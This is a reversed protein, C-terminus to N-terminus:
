FKMVLDAQLIKEEKDSTSDIEETMYYDLGFIVNKKIGVQAILEHGKYGTKGGAFDSDPFADIWADKELKRYLYKFQWQGADKVKKAGVKFGVLLGTNKDSPDSNDVYEALVAAYPLTEGAPEKIGIELAPSFADYDYLLNGNGDPSNTGATFDLTNGQVSSFAYYAVAGKIIWNGAKIKVGPQVVFLTPDSNAKNEEIIFGGANLFIPGMMLHLAGGEVNIDGDWLLDSPAWIVKKRIIKGGYLKVPDAPKIEAFAYDLQLGKSSFSDDFSQNTSRPDDGGSAFGVAVKVDDTVKASVGVRARVRGRSRDAIDKGTEDKQTLQYRLRLDGKVKITKVWKPIDGEEAYVSSIGFPILALLFAIMAVALRNYSKKM